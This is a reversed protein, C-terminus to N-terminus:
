GVTVNPSRRLTLISGVGLTFLFCMSPEPVPIRAVRFGIDYFETVAETSGQGSSSLAHASDYNAWSGGYMARFRGTGAIHETWEWVNGGQDFTGYFSKSQTYAGVDTTGNDLLSRHLLGNVAYGDNYGNSIQDNAFFNATNSPTPADTGPPQDSFPTSNSATPYLWYHDSDGGESAPQHYAAKYWENASPLFWTAGSNRSISTGNTPTSTGGLITYAGTETDGSGSGNNLWNAFRVADYFSVWVVPNNGRGPKAIYKSGDSNGALFNIGGVDTSTMFPSYLELTNTGAPDKANLFDVYQTNTTEYKGIRYENAVSGVYRTLSGDRGYHIVQDPNRPNGVPVTDITVAVSFLPAYLLLALTLASRM